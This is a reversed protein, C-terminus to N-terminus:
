KLELILTINASKNIIGVSPPKMYKMTDSIVKIITSDIANSGSTNTIKIDNIKGSSDINIDAKAIKNSPFDNVLLLDNQLNLKVNKGALKLFNMYEDKKVLNEPAEWSIKAVTPSYNPKNSVEQKITFPDTITNQKTESSSINDDLSNYEEMQEINENEDTITDSGKISILAFSGLILFMLISILIMRRNKASVVQAISQFEFKPMENFIANIVNKKYNGDKKDILDFMEVTSIPKQEQQQNQVDLNDESKKEIDIFDEKSVNAKFDKIEANKLSEEFNAFKGNSGSDFHMLPVQTLTEAKRILDPYFKINNALKEFDMTDIFKTRCADCNMLHQILQRKYISSLDNDIFKLFLGMCDVHKGLLTKTPISHKTMELFRNIDIIMNLNPYYYKSDCSCGLISKGDIFGIMKAEKIKSGIQVIFYFNPLIDMEVHIKPIKINKEKYLTIVDIRYNGYYIDSIKFEEFLLPIKYVSRQTSTKIKKAALYNIACNIGLMDIMGRKRLHAESLGSALLKANYAQEDNIEIIDVPPM